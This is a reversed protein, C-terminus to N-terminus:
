SNKSNSSSGSSGADGSSGGFRSEEEKVSEVYEISVNQIESDEDSKFERVVDSGEVPVDSSSDRKEQEGDDDGEFPHNHHDQSAPSSLDGGDSEKEDHSKLDDGHLGDKAEICSWGPKKKLDMENMVRRVAEVEAWREVSAYANSLLTHYGANDPELELLQHAAYAGLDSDLFVRSASLLAGWIGSDPDAVKQEIIALAEPLKGSRGLLDVMCTYHNLDPKIGFRWNMHHFIRCGKSVLGSYSCASLLNIFTVSNPEVGEEEMQNFLKLAELGLGHTGYGEIMSSWVVVDKILMRDFCRRASVISGCKAYMNLISTEMLTSDESSSYFMNRIVHCHVGKGLQLAGEHTYALVLSRLIDPGPKLCAMQMQQFLEIAEKFYGNQVFGSMMASWTISNRQPIEKFMQASLEVAGCKAYFDVLSTELVTDHLGTKISFCHVKKGQLLNGFKAFFSIVLTLTELNPMVETRMENFSEALRSFDGKSSYGSIMINWSVVDRKEFKNFLIASYEYSGTKTYMTLISNQVSGASEFGKKIVYAHFERGKTVNESVSCAQLMIVLTVPGPELKSRMEHFLRFSKAISREWVYGSIMSTWSVLDRQPMEDFLQRASSICGYKVYVEILTNCFYVDSGFGMQIALCHIMEGYRLHNQLSSIARNVLPFTFGDHPVGLERMERYLFLAAGFLGTDVHDKVISNWIHTNPQPLAKIVSVASNLDDFEAYLTILKSAFSIPQFANSLILTAHIQKLTQLDTCSSLMSSTSSITQPFHNNRLHHIHLPLPFRVM